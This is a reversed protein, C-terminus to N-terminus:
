DIASAAALWEDVTERNAAIWNTAVAEIAVHDNGMGEAELLLQSLENASFNIHTFLEGVDPYEALWDSNATIEITAANWGLQCGDPGYLCIDPGLDKFGITGDRQGYHAAEGPETGIPNSDDLVSKDLISIWMTTEGLKAQAVYSTPAWTYTIAPEGREAKALFEAFMAEYGAQVQELNHWEAFLLMSTMIDDCTWDEPCGYLEGKGNGDSDLQQWLDADANIQDITTVGNADAWSKTVLWGQLGGDPSMPPDFRTLHDGVRSGSPLEGEWWSEHTPYWSNAWFDIAGTAMWQYSRDPASERESPDTVEYGLEEVLDHIIQAQVYGSSWNARGMVISGEPPEPTPQPNVRPISAIVEEPLEIPASDDAVASVASESSDETQESAAMDDATSVEVVNQSACGSAVAAALAVGAM